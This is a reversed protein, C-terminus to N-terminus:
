KTAFRPKETHLPFKGSSNEHTSRRRPPFKPRSPLLYFDKETHKTHMEKNQKQRIEFSECQLLAFGRRRSFIGYDIYCHGHFDVISLQGNQDVAELKMQFNNM